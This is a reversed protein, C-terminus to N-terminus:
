AADCHLGAWSAFDALQLHTSVDSVYDLDLRFRPALIDLKITLTASFTPSALPTAGQWREVSLERFVV